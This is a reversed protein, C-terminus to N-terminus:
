ETRQPIEFAQLDSGKELIIKTFSVQDPDSVFNTLRIPQYGQKSVILSFTGKALEIMFHGGTDTSVTKSNQEVKITVNPLHTLSDVGQKTTDVQYVDGYLIAYANDDYGSYEFSLVRSKREDRIPSSKNRKPPDICAPLTLLAFIILINRLTMKYNCGVNVAQQQASIKYNDAQCSFGISFGFYL